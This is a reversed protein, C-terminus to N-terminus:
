DYTQTSFNLQLPKRTSPDLLLLNPAEADTLNTFANIKLGAKSYNVKAYGMTSGKQIDFPGVGTHIIGSTGGVGGAYTIRGGKIEQDVRADFKPQSTGSNEFSSGPTGTADVPYAAGGVTATPDRPDTIVPITGTPRPLPDSNFYGASIRYSWKDNPARAITANTGFTMGMGKGVGSGADRSFGGGSVSVSTGQAERPSKTIINVVGTLANAGWVASAPGRIVEIQKIDMLNTPLFDWLVLGFFDLYISRGDLLVLQSNTLTGTSQRSTVNVDRASLQIVNVGPVARLLDGYNQAPTSQLTQSTIVSMTAPADILAADSRTATVVVTDSVSGVRITIAPVEVGAAGVVVDNVVAPAFGTLTVTVRYTGAPVNAFNYDGRAGSTTTTNLASGALAVTAGPVAAASQDVVTGSVTTTQAFAPAALACLLVSAAFARIM